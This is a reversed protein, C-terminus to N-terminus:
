AAAHPALADRLAQTTRLCGVPRANWNDLAVEGFSRLLARGDGEVALLTALLNAMVVEAARAGQGDDIKLALGLGAEPLAGCYVGEAGVKVFARAGLRAMVVRDFRGSGAVMGPAAAVARRLRAAAEARRPALGVGSGFRAFGRALSRLPIGFTPISCGDTARPAHALDTGTIGGLAESVERMLPHRPEVYGRLWARPEAGAGAAMLAGVCAFGAHKGSCNNHLPGPAAGQAALARQAGEDLPWHAGCELVSDDLGARALMRAATQVHAPEGGHSACALALEADGLGWRAAAGSEVLPLAQLAKVASRPFVPREVDGLALRTRGDADVVALAGRHASEVAGHRADGRWLEVLVPNAIM